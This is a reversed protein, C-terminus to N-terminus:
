RKRQELEYITYAVVALHLLIIGGAYVAPAIGGSVQEIEDLQLEVIDDVRATTAPITM